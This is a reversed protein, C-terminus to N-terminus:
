PWGADADARQDIQRYCFIGFLLHHSPKLSQQTLFPSGSQTGVRRKIKDSGTKLCLVQRLM